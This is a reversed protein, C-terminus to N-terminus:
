STVQQLSQMHLGLSQILALLAFLEEDDHVVGSIVTEAPVVSIDMGEFAYQVRQSLRGQVRVEYRRDPM